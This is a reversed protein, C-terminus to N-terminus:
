IDRNLHEEGPLLRNKKLLDYLNKRDMGAKQAAQTINGKTQELLSSLYPKEFSELVKQKAEKYSVGTLPLTLLGTGGRLAQPLSEPTIVPGASLAAAHAMANELERVNGPWDHDSLARMVAPDIELPRQPTRKEAAGRLFHEALLPIDEKRDRLPPLQVTVVALRYYLDERFKDGAIAQKLDKNTAAIVRVDVRRSESSGIRRIEHDQLFRLLKVQLPPPMDGVEDLFVTGGEASELLGTRDRSADTFAGKVHGFLESEMLAEPLAGCHIPIFPKASRPSDSHVARAVLEKGTGSEGQILVSVDSQALQAITQFTERMKASNGIIQGSGCRSALEAKLRRNEDRLRQKELANEVALRIQDNKFPKTVFDSAGLKMAQVASELTGFATILVVPIDRSKSRVAELIQMGNIRPMKMDTVVLDFTTGDLAQLAEQPKQFSAVQYGEAGLVSELLRCMGPEDDVILIKEPRKGM